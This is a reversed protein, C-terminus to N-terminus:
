ALKSRTGCSLQLTCPVLVCLSGVLMVQLGFGSTARKKEVEGALDVKPVSGGLFGVLLAALNVLCGVKGMFIASKQHSQMQDSCFITCSLICRHTIWLHFYRSYGSENFLVMRTWLAWGYRRWHVTNHGGWNQNLLACEMITFSVHLNHQTCM